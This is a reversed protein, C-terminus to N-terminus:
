KPSIFPNRPFNRVHAHKCSSINGQREGAQREYSETKIQPLPPPTKCVCGGHCFSSWMIYRFPALTPNSLWLRQMQGSTTSLCNLIANQHSHSSQWEGLPKVFYCMILRLKRLSPAKVCVGEERWLILADQSIYFTKGKPTRFGFYSGWFEQCHNLLMRDFYLM